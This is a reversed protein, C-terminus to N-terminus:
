RTETDTTPRPALFLDLRLSPEGEVDFIPTAHADGTRASDILDGREAASLKAYPVDSEHLM